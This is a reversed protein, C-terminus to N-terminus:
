AKAKPMENRLVEGLPGDALGSIKQYLHVALHSNFELISPGDATIAVDWGLCRASTLCRHAHSAAELCERWFPLEFGEIEADTDPHRPYLSTDRLTCGAQLRGTALDVPAVISGAGMNDIISGDRALKMLVSPFEIRGDPHLLTVVRVTNTSTSNFAGLAPHQTVLAQLIIGEPDNAVTTLYRDVPVTGGQRFTLTGNAASVSDLIDVNHGHGGGIPKVIIPLPLGALRELFLAPDGDFPVTGFMGRRGVVFGYVEPTPVGNAKFFCYQHWKDFQVVGRHRPNLYKELAVYDKFRLYSDPVKEYLRITYYESIGYKNAVIDPLDKLYEIRSRGTRQRSASVLKMYRRFSYLPKMTYRKAQQM